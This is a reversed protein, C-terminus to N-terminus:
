LEGNETEEQPAPLEKLGKNAIKMFETIARPDDTLRALEGFLTIQKCEGAEAQMMALRQTQNRREEHDLVFVCGKYIEQHGNEFVRVVEHFLACDASCEKKLGTFPCKGRM